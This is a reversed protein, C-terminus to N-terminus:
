SYENRVKFDLTKLQGGTEQMSVGQPLDPLSYSINQGNYKETFTQLENHNM